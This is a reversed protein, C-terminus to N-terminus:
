YRVKVRGTLPYVTIMNSLANVGKDREMLMINTEVTLGPCSGDFAFQLSSSTPNTFVVGVNLRNTGGLLAGNTTIIYYGVLPETPSEMNGYTFLTRVRYTIANQRALNLASQLNMVSARMGAAHTIQFFAVVAMSMMIAMIILVALLEVLTFGAGGMQRNVKGMLIVMNGFQLSGMGM